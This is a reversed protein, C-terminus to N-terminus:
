PSISHRAGQESSARRGLSKFWNVNVYRTAAEGIERLHVYGINFSGLTTTTYGAQAHASIQPPPSGYLTAVDVFSGQTRTGGFGFSFRDGRWDYDFSELSGSRGRYDSHAVAGSVVGIKGLLFSGGVGADALGATAEGHAEATFHDTVGYRWTGSGIPDHGYDFPSLGYNERVVGLEASWDSLGKALLDHTAYLSFNLTTARGLADTLVVQANGAGNLNPITNLQFPGAPVNGSYQKVGNIYLEVDSPLTASGFFAPLPATIRYPQLAFDTGFQVGGIRTVRSWSLADTLVDGIRLALMSDPFSTTWTTDLRETHSQWGTGNEYTGQVLSTSSLVGWTNFARLETFANLTSNDREGLTSYLDYNLLVGPSTTVQTSTHRPANLVTSELNLLELPANVTVTQRSADYKAHVGRLSTLRIMDPTDAPLVFGLERLAAAGAYLDNDKYTFRALGRDAGNIIIELYVESGEAGGAAGSETAADLGAVAAGSSDAATNMALSASVLSAQLILAEALAIPWRHQKRPRLAM